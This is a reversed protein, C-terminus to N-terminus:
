PKLQNAVPVHYTAADTGATGNTLEPQVTFINGAISCANVMKRHRGHDVNPKSPWSLYFNAKNVDADVFFYVEEPSKAYQTNSNATIYAEVAALSGCKQAYTLNYSPIRNLTYGLFVSIDSTGDTQSPCRFVPPRVLKLGDLSSKSFSTTTGAGTQIQLYDILLNPWPHGGGAQNFKEGYSNDTPLLYEDNDDSYMRAAIGLQRLNGTCNSSRASERAASLAPLLMAALIAIIAIVM